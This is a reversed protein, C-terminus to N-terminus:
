PGLIAREEIQREETTATRAAILARVERGDMDRIGDVAEAIDVIGVWGCVLSAESRRLARAALLVELGRSETKSDVVFCVQIIGPVILAIM